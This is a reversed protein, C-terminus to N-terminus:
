KSGKSAQFEKWAAKSKENELRVMLALTATEDRLQRLLAREASGTLALAANVDALGGAEIAIALKGSLNNYFRSLTSTYAASRINDEFQQWISRAYKSKYNSDLGKWLPILLRLATHYQTPYDSLEM